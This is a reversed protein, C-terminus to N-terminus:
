SLPRDLRVKAWPEFMLLFARAEPDTKAAETLKASLEAIEGANLSELASQNPFLLEVSSVKIAYNSRQRCLVKALM